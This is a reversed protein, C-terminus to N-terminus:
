EIPRGNRMNSTRINKKGSEGTGRRLKRSCRKQGGGKTLRRGNDGEGHRPAPNGFLWAESPREPVNGDGM